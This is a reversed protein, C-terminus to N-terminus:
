YNIFTEGDWEDDITISLRLSASKINAQIKPYLYHEKSEPFTATFGDVKVAFRTVSDLPVAQLGCSEGYFTRMQPWQDAFSDKDCAVLLFEATAFIAAVLYKKIM